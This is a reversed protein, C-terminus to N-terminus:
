DNEYLKAVILNLMAMVYLEFKMDKPAFIQFAFLFFATLYFLIKM